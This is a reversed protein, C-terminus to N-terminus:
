LLYPLYAVVAVFTITFTILANTIPKVTELSSVQISREVSKGRSNHATGISKSLFFCQGRSLCFNIQNCYDSDINHTDGFKFLDAM